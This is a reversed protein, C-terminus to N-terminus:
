PVLDQYHTCIIFLDGEGWDWQGGLNFTEPYSHQLDEARLKLHNHCWDDRVDILAMCKQVLDIDDTVANWPHWYLRDIRYESDRTQIFDIGLKCNFM